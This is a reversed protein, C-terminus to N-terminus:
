CFLSIELSWLSHLIEGEWTYPCPEFFWLPFEWLAKEFRRIGIAWGKPSIHDVRTPQSCCKGVKDMSRRIKKSGWLKQNTPGFIIFYTSGRLKNRPAHEHFTEFFWFICHFWTASGLDPKAVPTLIMQAHDVYDSWWWCAKDYSEMNNLGETPKGEALSLSSFKLFVGDLSLCCLNLPDIRV